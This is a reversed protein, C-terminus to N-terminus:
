MGRSVKPEVVLVLDDKELNGVEYTWKNRKTLLPLYEKLWRNWFMNALVQAQRYKKRSNIERDSVVDLPSNLNPRHILIHM